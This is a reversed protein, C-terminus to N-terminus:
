GEAESAPGTEREREAKLIRAGMEKQGARTKGGFAVQVIEDSTEAIAEEIIVQLDM